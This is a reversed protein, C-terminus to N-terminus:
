APAPPAPPEQPPDNDRGSKDGPKDDGGAALFREFEAALEDGSPLDRGELEDTLNGGERAAAVQDYQEELAKVVQVVEDSDAMQEAIETDAQEAARTLTETPLYLGASLGAHDLLVRAAQPYASRALYHPVHVAYGMADQGTQGLRYELLAAASGPVDATAFWPTHGEVLEPRTAHATVGIPRTHPVAMPIGQLTIVLRVGLQEVLLGVAAVFREWQTDPEPGSLLLYQTEGTDTLAVVDLAPPDYDSWHDTEFRLPPRRSRYDVLQDIDFSAVPTTEREDTLAGVALAAANGADVFGDLVVILVPEDLRPAAKDVQYLQAPDLM